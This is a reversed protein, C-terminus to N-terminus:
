EFELIVEDVALSEGAIAHILMITGKKEARLINEMKMAEVTALAQGEEVEEGEKVAINVILGPMPCLLLNSTDPAVKELMHRSLEAVRPSQVSATIKAGRWRMCYGSDCPTVKVAIKKGNITAICLPQGPRWDTLVEIKGDGVFKIRAGEHRAKLKIPFAEGDLSVIWDKGV